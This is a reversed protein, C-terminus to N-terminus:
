QAIDGCGQVLALDFPELEQIVLEDGEVLSVEAEVIAGRNNDVLRVDQREEFM